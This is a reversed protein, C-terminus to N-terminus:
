PLLRCARAAISYQASVVRVDCGVHWVPAPYPRCLAPTVLGFTRVLGRPCSTDGVGPRSAEAWGVGWVVRDFASACLRRITVASPLRRAGPALVPTGHGPREGVRAPEM